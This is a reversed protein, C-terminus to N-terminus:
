SVKLTVDISDTDQDFDWSAFYDCNFTDGVSICNAPEKYEKVDSACSDTDPNTSELRQNLSKYNTRCKV